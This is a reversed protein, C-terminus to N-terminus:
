KATEAEVDLIRTPRKSQSSRFVEERKNKMVQAWRKLPSKAMELAMLRPSTVMVKGDERQFVVQAQEDKAERLEDRLQRLPKNSLDAEVFVRTKSSQGKSSLASAIALAYASANSLSSVRQTKLTDMAMDVELNSARQVWHATHLEQRLSSLSQEGRTGSFFPVFGDLEAAGSEKVQKGEAALIRKVFAEMEADKKLSAVVKYGDETLPADAGSFTENGDKKSADKGKDKDPKHLRAETHGCVVGLALLAQMASVRM